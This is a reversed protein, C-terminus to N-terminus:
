GAVAALAHVLDQGLAIEGVRVGGGLVPLDLLQAAKTVDVGSAELARLAVLTAPRANGDHVKLAVATGDKAAMALVGEAGGKSILGPIMGMVDTDAREDGAVFFPHDGMAQAVAHEPTGVQGLALKQFARALGWTTTSFLPAGCGDVTTHQIKAGTMETITAAIQRQLPHNADLYSATDWDNIVCTLLMAAHKGSCNMRAREAEGGAALHTRRTTEHGPLDPPCALAAPTLGARDLIQNLVAVHRSQGSHSGTALALQAGALPAGARLCALAQLPKASSRPLIPADVSGLTLTAAGSPDLAVVTGQHRSEVFGDRTVVAIEPV